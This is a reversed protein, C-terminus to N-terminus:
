ARQGVGPERGVTSTMIGARRMATALAAAILVSAAGALLVLTRLALGGAVVVIIGAVVSAVNYLIDYLSFVRGHVINPLAEQLQADVAVKTVFAGLGTIGSLAIVAVADAIGGLVLVGAGSVALGTVVLAPKSLRRALLGATVTGAFAGIGAAGLSVAGASLRGVRDAADPYQVKIVLIVAIAVFMAVTRAVFLAILPLRAGLTEWVAAVGESMDGLVRRLADGIRADHAGHPGGPVRILWALTGSTAYLFGTLLLSTSLGLAGVLLVGAAGGLLASVMGTGGSLANGRLLRDPPLLLPLVASKTTLFLRGLGLLLLVAAYLGADGPLASRWLPFSLLLAARTVNTWLMLAGREWRDVFVGAFPGIASYPILTVILLTLIRMPTGDDFADLVLVSAMAAQALGDAGQALAQAGLLL